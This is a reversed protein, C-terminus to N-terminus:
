FPPEDPPRPLYRDFFELEELTEQMLPILETLGNDIAFHQLSILRSRMNGIQGRLAVYNEIPVRIYAQEKRM